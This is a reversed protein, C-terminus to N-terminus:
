CFLPTGGCNKVIVELVDSHVKNFKRHLQWNSILTERWKQGDKVTKITTNPDVIETMREVESMYTEFYREANGVLMAELNSTSFRPLEIVRNEEMCPAQWVRDFVERSNPSIKLSDNYDTQLILILVIRKCGDRIAEYLEWSAPDMM